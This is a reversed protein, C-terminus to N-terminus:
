TEFLTKFPLWKKEIIDGIAPPRYWTASLKEIYYTHKLMSIIGLICPVTGNFRCTYIYYKILIMLMDKSANESDPDSTFKHWEVYYLSVKGVNRVQM